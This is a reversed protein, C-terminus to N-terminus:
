WLQWDLPRLDHAMLPMAAGAAIACIASVILVLIDNKTAYRYLGFYSINIPPIDLQRRIIAAEHEPLHQLLDEPTQDKNQYKKHKKPAESDL